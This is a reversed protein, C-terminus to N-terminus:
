ERQKKKPNKELDKNRSVLVPSLLFEMCFHPEEDKLFSLRPTEMSTEELIEM